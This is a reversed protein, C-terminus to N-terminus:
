LTRRYYTLAAHERLPVNLRSDERAIKESDKASLIERDSDLSGTLLVLHDVDERTDHVYANNM